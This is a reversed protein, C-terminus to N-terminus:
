WGVRYIHARERVDNCYLLGHYEMLDFIVKEIKSVATDFGECSPYELRSRVNSFVKEPSANDLEDNSFTLVKPQNSWGFKYCSRINYCGMVKLIERIMQESPDIYNSSYGDFDIYYRQTSQM